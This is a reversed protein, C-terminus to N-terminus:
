TAGGRLVTIQCRRRATDQRRASVAVARAQSPLSVRGALFDLTVLGDGDFSPDLSGDPSLRAAAFYDHDSDSVGRTVGALVIKGDPQLALANASSSGAFAVTVLGDGDFSPDLSGDPSLRAAVFDNREPGSVIGAVGGLIIKGDPQLALANASSSRGAAYTFRGDGDFSPDLSGDPNLRAAAFADVADGALM